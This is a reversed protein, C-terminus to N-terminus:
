LAALNHQEAAVAQQCPWPRGCVTRPGVTNIHTNLVGIEKARLLNSMDPSQGCTIPTYPQRSSSLTPESDHTFPYAGPNECGFILVTFM